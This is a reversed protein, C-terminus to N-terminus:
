SRTETAKPLSTNRINGKSQSADWVTLLQRLKRYMKKWQSRSLKSNTQGDKHLLRFRTALEKLSVSLLEDPFPQVYPWLMILSKRAMLYSGVAFFASTLADISPVDPQINAEVMQKFTAAAAEPQGQRAYGAILITYMVRNPKVGVQTAAKLIDQAASLNGNRTYGEMLASFHYENPQIGRSLILDFVDQAADMDVKLAAEHRLRLSAFVGDVRTKQISLEGVLSKAARREIGELPIGAIPDFSETSSKALLSIPQIRVTPQRSRSFMAATTNWGVGFTLYREHRIIRSLLVHLHRLTLQLEPFRLKNLVRLLMRPRASQSKGVYAILAEITGENPRINNAQMITFIDRVCALGHISLSGKLLANFLRTNPVIGTPEIPLSASPNYLGQRSLSSFAEAPVYECTRLVTSFALTIEGSACYVHTLATFIEPTSQINASFLGQAVALAGSLDQKSAMYHIFTAFTEANASLYHTRNIKDLPEAFPNGGGPTSVVGSIVKIICSVQQPDFVALMQLTAAPDEADLRLQILRNLVTVAVNEDLLTLSRLAQDQVQLNPGLHRYYSTIIAHTSNDPPLGIQGMLRLLKRTEHLDRNRIHGSILLHFTRRNPKVQYKEFVDLINRLLAYQRNEILARICWNLLRATTTGTHREGLSVISLVTNWHLNIALHYVTCEYANQKLHCGFEHALQLVHVALHFNSTLAIAEALQRAKTNDRLLQLLSPHNRRIEKRLAADSLGRSLLESLLHAPLPSKPTNKQQGDRPSANRAYAAGALPTPDSIPIGSTSSRLLKPRTALAALPLCRPSISPRRPRFFISSLTFAIPTSFTAQEIRQRHALGARRLM